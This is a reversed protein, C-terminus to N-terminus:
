QLAEIIAGYARSHLKALIPSNTLSGYNSIVKAWEQGLLALHSLIKWFYVPTRIFRKIKGTSKAITENFACALLADWDTTGQATFNETM